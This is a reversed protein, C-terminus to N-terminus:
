PCHKTARAAFCLRIVFVGFCIYVGKYAKVVLNLVTNRFILFYNLYIHTRLLSARERAAM